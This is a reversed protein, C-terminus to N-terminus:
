CILTIDKTFQVLQKQIQPKLGQVAAKLNDQAVGSGDASFTWQYEDPESSVALDSVVVTGTVSQLPCRQTLVLLHLQASAAGDLPTCCAYACALTLFYATASVKGVENNELWRGEWKLTLTLDFYAFTKNAKRRTLM